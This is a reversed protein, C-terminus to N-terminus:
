RTNWISVRIRAWRCSTQILNNAIADKYAHARELLGVATVCSLYWSNEQIEPFDSQLIISNTDTKFGLALFTAIMPLSALGPELIKTRDTLGHWDVCMLIVEYRPDNSFEICPRIAGFYNGIHVDGTPKIGTLVRKKVATM